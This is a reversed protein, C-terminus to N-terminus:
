NKDLSLLLLALEKPHEEEWHSTLGRRRTDCTSCGQKHKGSIHCRVIEEASYSTPCSGETLLIECTGCREKM